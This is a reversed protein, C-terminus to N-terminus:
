VDTIRALKQIKNLLADGQKITQRYKDNREDDADSAIIGSVADIKCALGSTIFSSLEADIFAPTVGFAEAMTDVKVSKYPALYQRYCNRRMTRMFYRVHRNLYRNERVHNIVVVFNEMCEKYQCNYYSMLFEKLGESKINSSDGIASLVDPSDKIKTNLIQRDCSVMSLIVAYFIFSNFDTVEVATFTAIADQFKLAASRWDRTLMLYIGEYVKLKNRREWDGGKELDAKAREIGKKVLQTDDFFLAIRIVTLINDLKGGVGVTKDYAVQYAELAKEKDGIRNFFDAKAQLGDRVEVDGLNEKADQITEELKALEEDNRKKLEVKLAEDVKWGAEVCLKEYYPLMGNVKITDLVKAQLASKREASSFDGLMEFRDDALAMLPYSVEPLEGAMSAAFHIPPLCAPDTSNSVQAM